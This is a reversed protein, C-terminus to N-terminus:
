STSFSMFLVTSQDKVSLGLISNQLCKISELNLGKMLLFLDLHYDTIDKATIDKSKVAIM